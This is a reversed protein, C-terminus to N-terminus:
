LFICLAIGLAAAVVWGAASCGESEEKKRKREKERKIEEELERIRQERIYERSSARQAKLRWLEKEAESEKVRRDRAM